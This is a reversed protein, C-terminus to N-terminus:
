PAIVIDTYGRLYRELAALLTRIRESGLRLNEVPIQILHAVDSQDGPPLNAWWEEKVPYGERRALLYLAKFHVAEPSTGRAFAALADVTLAHIPAFAEAHALNSWITQVFRSAERLADYHRALEPHAAVVQFDRLFFGSGRKGADLEADITEFIDPATRQVNKKSRRWLADLPGDDASFLRYRWYSEGHERRALVLVRIQPHREAM